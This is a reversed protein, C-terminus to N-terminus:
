RQIGELRQRIFTNAATSGERRAVASLDRSFTNLEAQPLTRALRDLEVVAGSDALANVVEPQRLEPNAEELRTLGSGLRPDGFREAVRFVTPRDLTAEADAPPEGPPTGPAPEVPPTPAVTELERVASRLLLENSALRSTSLLSVVDGRATLSARDTLQNFRDSLDLTRLRDRLDVEIRRDNGGLAVGVGAIDARYALNRQRLYWLESAQALEQRWRNDVIQQPDLPLPQVRPLKLRQLVELPSRKAILGPAALTLPRTLTAGSGTAGTAGDSSNSLSAQALDLQLQRLRQRTIPIVVLLAISALEEAGATLDIPPLHLSEEVLAALEDSPVVTLEVAMDSPFYTQSFDVPNIATKPLRGAAPLAQFQTAASFTQGQAGAEVAQLHQEYQRLHAVRLARPTSGLGLVASDGQSQLRRVLAGDIWQIQGQSLGLMALPLVGAPTNPLAAEVFIQRAAQARQALGSGGEGYRILSVATAEVIEGDRETTSRPEAIATPYSAIPHDSYEVPRLGLIFLGSLSRIPESPIALLGFTADLSQIQALDDLRVTLPEPVAVIEGSPTVGYGPLIEVAAGDPQNNALLPRVELGQVVGYGATRNLAAQRSLFYTQEQTLAQASLFRGDFYLPRQRQNDLVLTGSQELTARETADIFERAPNPTPM